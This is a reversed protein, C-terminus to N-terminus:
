MNLMRNIMARVRNSHEDNKVINHAIESQVYSKVQDNDGYDGLERDELQECLRECLQPHKSAYFDPLVCQRDTRHHESETKFYCVPILYRDEGSGEICTNQITRESLAKATLFSQAQQMAELAHRKVTAASLQAQLMSSEKGMTVATQILDTHLMRDSNVDVDKVLNFVPQDVEHIRISLERNLDSFLKQYRASTRAYDEGMKKQKEQLTAAQQRLLMLRTEVVQELAVKQTGLDTRVTHFFGDIITKSVKDANKEIALCQAVNMAGVSATLGNVHNNCSAVSADFPSTNVHVDVDVDEYAVGSYHVQKTGGHESAPYSVTETGHYSVAIRRTFKRSYSM